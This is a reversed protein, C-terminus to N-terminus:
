LGMMTRYKQLINVGLKSVKKNWGVNNGSMLKVDTLILGWYLLCVPINMESMGIVEVVVVGGYGPSVPSSAVESLKWSVCVKLIM